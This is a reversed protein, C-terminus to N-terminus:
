SLIKFFENEIIKQTSNKNELIYNRCAEQATQYYNTDSLLKEVIGNLEPQNEFSFAGKLKILEIAENFKKYNPGFLVPIEYVSPELINHIGKGFGGGIYAIAAFRYLKSLLGIQDIVIINKGKIDEVTKIGSWLVCTDPYSKLWSKLTNEHIEHPVIIYKLPLNQKILEKLFDDDEPWTSGAILVKSSHCFQEMMENQFPSEKIRIVQDLRTDGVVSVNSINILSLLNKSSSTQVFFHTVFRLTKRFFSGYRKFFLQDPRFNASVIYLPINQAHLEKFYYYWFEYKVFVAAKPKMQAIFMSANTKGDLPLYLALDIASDNKKAEYGSPSFFTVLIFYDTNKKRLAEMLPKGQEFEGTSACHFWIIPKKILSLEAIKSTQNKRGEVWQKAKKNFLSYGVIGCYFARLFFNYLFMFIFFLM